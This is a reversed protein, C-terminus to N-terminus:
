RVLDLPLAPIIGEVITGPGDIRKRISIDSNFILKYQEQIFFIGSQSKTLEVEDSLGQGDDAIMISIGSYLRKVEVTISSANGHFDTNNISETILRYLGLLVTPNESEILPDISITCAIQKPRMSGVHSYILQNLTMNNNWFSPPISTSIVRANDIFEDVRKALSLLEPLATEASNNKIIRQADQYVSGKLRHLAVLQHIDLSPRAFGVHILYQDRARWLVSSLAQALSQVMYIFLDNFEKRSRFNFFLIGLPEEKIGVPVFCSSIIKERDVFKSQEGNSGYLYQDVRVNTSPYISWQRILKILTSDMNTITSRMLDPEYIDEEIFLPQSIPIGTPSLHYYILPTSGLQNKAFKAFESIISTEDLEPSSFFHPINNNVTSWVQNGRQVIDRSQSVSLASGLINGLTGLVVRDSYNYMSPNPSQVSIVGFVEGRNYIPIAIESRTDDKTEDTLRLLNIYGGKESDIDNWVIISKNKIAATTIGDEELLYKRGIINPFKNDSAQGIVCLNNDLCKKIIFVRDYQLKEKILKPIKNELALETEQFSLLTLSTERLMSNLATDGTWLRQNVWSLGFTLYFISIFLAADIKNFAFNWLIIAGFSFIGLITWWIKTPLLWSISRLALQIVTGFPLLSFLIVAVILYYMKSDTAHIYLHMSVWNYLVYLWSSITLLSLFIIQHNRRLSYENEMEENKSSDSELPYELRNSITENVFITKREILLKIWRIFRNSWSGNILAQYLLTCIGSIIIWTWLSWKELRNEVGYMALIGLGILLSWPFLLRASRRSRSKPARGYRDNVVFDYISM